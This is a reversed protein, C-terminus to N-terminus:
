LPNPHHLLSKPSRQERPWLSDFLGKFIKCGGRVVKPSKGKKPLKGPGRGRSRVSMEFSYDHELKQREEEGIRQQKAPLPGLTGSNGGAINRPLSGLLFQLFSVCHVRM